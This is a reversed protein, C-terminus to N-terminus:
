RLNVNGFAVKFFIELILNGVEFKKLGLEVPEWIRDLDIRCQTTQAM